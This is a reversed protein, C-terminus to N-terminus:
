FIWQVIAGLISDVLFLFLAALGAFVMVMIAARIVSDRDAWNIRFWEARVNKIFNTIKKLIEGITKTKVPWGVGLSRAASL